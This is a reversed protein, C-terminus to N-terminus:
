GLSHKTVSHRVLRISTLAGHQGFVAAIEAESWALPLGRVFLNPHAALTGSSGSAAALAAAAASILDLQVAAASAAGGPSNSPSQSGTGSGSHHDM